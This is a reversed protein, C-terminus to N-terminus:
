DEEKALVRMGAELVKLIKETDYISGRWTGGSAQQLAAWLRTDEPLKAHPQLDPHPTRKELITTGITPTFTEEKTGIFNLSGSLNKCDIIIEILDGDRLKGFPGGALAEPGIHGICAGTSVGSFRADTLLSVEKGYPLHKLASTVQYTEEMGTGLPGGGMIVMIDKPKIQHSKIAVIAAKESTFVKAVGTHRYIGYTDIKSPDIATSKVVSGEPAINGIPFTVTSTLGRKKAQEPSMIVDDADVADNEWLIQKMKTRRNSSEWWDLVEKLTQGTVTLVDEHLIGMRRLHLMVEPTGGALFMRLTPHNVPGNPLVSVLRPVKRNIRVWDELTPMKCGAAHAIAPIHLLLNTSGGIAAHVMMANEISKDTVIEKTTLGKKLLIAMAKASQRGIDEWVPQGSPALASHPLALGLAEAVVQSTGATGLFHCGGGASACAKCGLESAENVTIESHAYRAGLTQIKALDEGKKPPLTVGGPVLITPQDHQSVLAMMMAPLGKDCTAIGIVGKRTPLSRILRRMVISADNRYPLSDFMGVTGQSRGDCQDSVYTAFPIGGLSEIQEAIVETQIDLEYHGSHLGLATPNGDKGRLGAKTSIIMIQNGLLKSSDWGMGTNMTMGFLDGSPLNLLMESTLPLRGKPGDAKTQINFIDNNNELLEKLSM